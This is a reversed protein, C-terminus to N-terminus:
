FRLIPRCMDVDYIFMFHFDAICCDAQLTLVHERVQCWLPSLVIPLSEFSINILISYVRVSPMKFSLAIYTRKRVSHWFSRHPLDSLTNLSGTSTVFKSLIRLPKTISMEPQPCLISGTNRITQLSNSIKADLQARENCRKYAWSGQLVTVATLSDCFILKCLKLKLWLTM